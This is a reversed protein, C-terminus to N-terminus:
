VYEAFDGSQKYKIILALQKAIEKAQEKSSGMPLNININGMSVSKSTVREGEHLKYLGTRPVIGGSQMSGGYSKLMEYDKKMQIINMQSKLEDISETLQKSYLSAGGSMWDAGFSTMISSLEPWVRELRQLKNDLKAYEASLEAVNINAEMSSLAKDLGGFQSIIEKIKDTIPKRSSGIGYISIPVDLGQGWQQSFDQFSDSMDQIADKGGQFFETKGGVYDAWSIGGGGADGGVGGSSEISAPIVIKMNQAKKIFEDLERLAPEVDLHTPLKLKEAEKIKKFYEDVAKNVRKQRDEADGPIAKITEQYVEEAQLKQESMQQDRTTLDRLQDSVAKIADVYEWASMKGQTFYNKWSGQLKTIQEVIGRTKSTAENLNDAERVVAALMNKDYEYLDGLKYNQEAIDEMAKAVAKIQEPSPQYAEAIEQETKPIKRWPKEAGEPLKPAVFSKSTPIVGINEGLEMWMEGLRKIRVGWDELWPVVYKTYVETTQNLGWVIDTLFKAFELALPVLSLKTVKLTEEFNKFVQDVEEGKKIVDDSLVKGTKEATKYFEEIAKRGQNFFPAMAMGGKGTLELIKNLKMAPSAVNELGDAIKLLMEDLQIGAMVPDQMDIGLSKFTNGATGTGVKADAMSQSLKKMGMMVSEIEVDSMKAAYALKQYAETSIGITKANRGIEDTADAISRTFNYIRGATQLVQQGLYVFSAGKIAGISKQLGGLSQNVKGIGSVFNALNLNLDIVLQGLAM